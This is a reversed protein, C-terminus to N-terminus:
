LSSHACFLVRVIMMPWRRVLLSLLSFKPKTTDFLNPAAAAGAGQPGGAAAAVAAIQQLLAPPLSIGSNSSGEASAPAGTGASNGAGAAPEAGSPVAAALTAEPAAAAM